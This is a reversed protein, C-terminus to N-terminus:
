KTPKDRREALTTLARFPPSQRAFAFSRICSILVDRSISGIAIGCTSFALFEVSFLARAARGLRSMGGVDQQTGEAAAAV